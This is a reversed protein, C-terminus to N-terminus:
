RMGRATRRRRFLLESVAAAVEGDIDFAATDAGLDTLESLLGEISPPQVKGDVLLPRWTEAERARLFGVRADSREAPDRLALVILDHRVALTRLLPAAEPEHLDSLVVVLSRPRAVSQVAALSRTLGGAGCARERRLVDIWRRTASLSRTARQFLETPGLSALGVPTLRRFSSLAVAGALRVSWGHKTPWHAGVGMSSSRDVVLYLEAGRLSEYERVYHLGTRALIRWDISRYPDGEQYPRSQAYDMGSGRYRSRDGGYELTEALARLELEFRRPDLMAEDNTPFGM